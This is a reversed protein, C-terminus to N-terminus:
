KRKKIYIHRFQHRHIMARPTAEEQFSGSRGSAQTVTHGWGRHGSGAWQAASLGLQQWQQQKWQQVHERQLSSVAVALQRVEM